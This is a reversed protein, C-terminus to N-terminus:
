SEFPYWGFAPYLYSQSCTLTCWKSAESAFLHWLFSTLGHLTLTLLPFLIPVYLNSSHNLIAPLSFPLTSLALSHWSPRKETQLVSTKIHRTDINELGFIPMTQPIHTYKHVCHSLSFDPRDQSIRFIHNSDPFPRNKFSGLVLMALSSCLKVIVEYLSQNHSVRYSSPRIPM